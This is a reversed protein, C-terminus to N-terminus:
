ATATRMSLQQRIPEIREPTTDGRLLRGDRRDLGLTSNDCPAIAPARACRRSRAGRRESCPFLRHVRVRGNKKRAIRALGELLRLGVQEPPRYSSFTATLNRPWSGTAERL